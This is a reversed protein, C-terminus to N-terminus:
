VVVGVATFILGGAQFMGFAAGTNQIHLLRVWEGYGPVVELAQGVPLNARVWIKTLQDVVIIVIATLYILANKFTLKM